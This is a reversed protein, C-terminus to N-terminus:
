QALEPMFQAVALESRFGGQSIMERLSLKWGNQELLGAVPLPRCGGTMVPSRRYLWMWADNVMRKQQAMSLVILRGGPRLVRAFEHLVAPVDEMLLLDMMYLNFLIDFVEDGFPLALANARCLNPRGVGSAALRKQARALMPASLDVGACRELGPTKALETFFEGGGVAVELVREDGTLQAAEYARRTAHSEFLASWFGYVPAVV